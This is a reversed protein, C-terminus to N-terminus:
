PDTEQWGDPMTVVIQAGEPIVWDDDFRPVWVEPSGVVHPKGAIMQFTGTIKM